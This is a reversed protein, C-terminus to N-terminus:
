FRPLEVACCITKYSAEIAGFGVPRAMAAAAPVGAPRGITREVTWLVRSRQNHKHFRYGFAEAGDEFGDIGKVGLAALEDTALVLANDAAEALARARRLPDANAASVGYFARLADAAAADILSPAAPKSSPAKTIATGAPAIGPFTGVPKGARIHADLQDGLDLYDGPWTTLTSSVRILEVGLARARAKLGNRSLKWRQELERLPLDPQTIDTM